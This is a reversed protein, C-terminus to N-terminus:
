AVTLGHIRFVTRIINTLTAELAPEVAQPQDPTVPLDHDRLGGAWESSQLMVGGMGFSLDHEEEGAMTKWALAWGRVTNEVHYGGGGVVLMPLNFRLLRDLIDAHTNNTLRLHTLPDGALADMGLEIVLVDPRDAEILPVVVQRFARLYATDYTGAPLPINVNYGRGDGEGIEDEFGGWPFLTKGSEHLSITLVDRRNYFAAQVGDGHHADVDLFLVRKGAATLRLCGLVPDNIYCFGAAKEPMAHHFGGWPNFAIEAQGSLILDAGTLTAGAAALAYRYLDPFVPTDPTGLGMHLGEVRLDGAAARELEDLYRPTHFLKADARTAPPPAVERQNGSGLLGFAHLRECTRVARGTQFPCDPPYTLAALEPSYLFALKRDSM